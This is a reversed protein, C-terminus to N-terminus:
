GHRPQVDEPRPRDLRIAATSTNAHLWRESRRRRSRHCSSAVRETGASTAEVYEVNCRACYDNFQTRRVYASGMLRLERPTQQRLSISDGACLKSRPSDINSVCLQRTSIYFYSDIDLELDFTLITYDDQPNAM